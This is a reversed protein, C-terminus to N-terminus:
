LQEAPTVRPSDDCMGYCYACASLSRIKRLEDFWNRKYELPLSDDFLNLVENKLEPVKGLEVCRRLAPCPFLKGGVIPFPFCSNFKQIQACKSFRDERAEDSPYKLELDAFDVWGGCHADEGHYKRVSHKINHQTLLQDVEHVKVSLKEGYDDVLFVVKQNDTCAVLLNKSPLVAGNTIIEIKTIRDDYNKLYEVVEPLAKQLLPEGGSIVFNGVKVVIAFFEDIGRMLTNLEYHPPSEYYPSYTICHRCKLNCRLTMTLACRQLFLDKMLSFDDM